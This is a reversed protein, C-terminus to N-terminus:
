QGFHPEEETEEDPPLLKDPLKIHKRVAPADIVGRTDSARSGNQETGTLNLGAQGSRSLLGM